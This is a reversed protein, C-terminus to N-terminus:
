KHAPRAEPGRPDRVFDITIRAAEQMLEAQNLSSKARTQWRHSGDEIWHLRVCAPIGEYGRVEERNGHSDRSGQVILTPLTLGLLSALGHQDRPDGRRHFPYALCLLARARSSEAIRAAIRAGRSFGGIVIERQGLASSLQAELSDDSSQNDFRLIEVEIDAERWERCLSALPEADDAKPLAV